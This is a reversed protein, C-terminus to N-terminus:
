APVPALGVPILETREPTHKGTAIDHVRHLIRANYYRNGCVDCIGITINELIVFRRKHKFAEREVLKSRVIGECYACHYEYMINLTM